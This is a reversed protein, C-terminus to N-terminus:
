KDLRGFLRLATLEDAVHRVIPEAHAYSGRDILEAALRLRDAPPMELIRDRLAEVEARTKLAM